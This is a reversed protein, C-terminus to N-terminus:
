KSSKEKGAAIVQHHESILRTSAVFQPWSGPAPMEADILKLLADSHMPLRAASHNARESLAIRADIKQGIETKVREIVDEILHPQSTGEIEEFAAVTMRHLEALEGNLESMIHAATDAEGV